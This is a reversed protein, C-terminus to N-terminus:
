AEPLSNLFDAFVTPVVPAADDRNIQVLSGLSVDGYIPLDNAVALAIGDGFAVPVSFREIGRALVAEAEVLNGHQCFLHIAELSADLQRILRQLATAMRSRTTMMGAVEAALTQADNPALRVCLTADDHYARLVVTAFADPHGKLSDITFQYM